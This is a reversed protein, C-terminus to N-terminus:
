GPAVYTIMWNVPQTSSTQNTTSSPSVIPSTTVPPGPTPDCASGTKLSTTVLSGPATLPCGGAETTAYAATQNVEALFPVTGRFVEGLELSSCLCYTEPCVSINSSLSSSYDTSPRESRLYLSVDKRLGALGILPRSPERDTRCLCVDYSM